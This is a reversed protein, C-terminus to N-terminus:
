RQTARNILGDVDLEEAPSPTDAQTPQSLLKQVEGFWLNMNTITTAKKIAANFDAERGKFLGAVKDAFLKGLPSEAKRLLGRTIRAGSELVRQKSEKLQQKQLLTAPKPIAAGVIDMFTDADAADIAAIDNPDSLTQKFIEKAEQLKEPQARLINTQLIRQEELAESAGQAAKSAGIRALESPRGRILGEKAINRETALRNQFATGAFQGLLGLRQKQAAQFAPLGNAM